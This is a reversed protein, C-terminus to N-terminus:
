PSKKAGQPTSENPPSDPDVPLIRVNDICSLGPGDKQAFRLKHDGVSASFRFASPAFKSPPMFDAIKTDDLWVQMNKKSGYSLVSKAMFALDYTGAFEFHVIQSISGGWNMRASQVGEPARAGKAGDIGIGGYEKNGTFTWDANTPAYQFVGNCPWGSPVVPYEFGPNRLPVLPLYKFKMATDAATANGAKDKVGIVSLTYPIIRTLPTTDLTVTREDESLAAGAVGAGNNLSYNKFNEAGAKEVPETFVVTVKQSDTNSPRVTELNPPSRNPVVQLTVTDSFGPMEVRVRAAGPIKATLM